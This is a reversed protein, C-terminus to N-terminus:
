IAPWEILLKGYGRIKASRGLQSLINWLMAPNSAVAITKLDSEIQDLVKLPDLVAGQFYIADIDGAEKM